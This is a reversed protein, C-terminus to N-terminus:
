TTHMWARLCETRELAKIGAQICALRKNDRRTRLAGLLLLCFEMGRWYGLVKSESATYYLENVMAIGGLDGEFGAVNAVM